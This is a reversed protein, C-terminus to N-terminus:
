WVGDTEQNEELLVALEEEVLRFEEELESLLLDSELLQGMGGLLEMQLCMDAMKKAGIQANSSKMAHAARRVADADEALLATRINALLSPSIQLFKIVIRILMEPQNGADKVLGALVQRDLHSSVTSCIAQEQRTNGTM